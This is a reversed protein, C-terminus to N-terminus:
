DLWALVVLLAAIAAAIAALAVLMLSTRHKRAERADRRAYRYHLWDQVHLTINQEGMGNIIARSSGATRMLRYRVNETGLAELANRWDGEQTRGHSGV